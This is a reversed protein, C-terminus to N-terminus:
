EVCTLNKPKQNPRVILNAAGPQPPNISETGYVGRNRNYAGGGGGGNMAGDVQFGWFICGTIGGGGGGKGLLM